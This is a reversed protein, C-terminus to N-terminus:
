PKAKVFIELPIITWPHMVAIHAAEIAIRADDPSVSKPHWTDFPLIRRFIATCWTCAAVYRGVTLELHYGDRTLDDGKSIVTRADQIATGTPILIKLEPYDRMVKNACLEISHFMSLQSMNYAKFGEHKSNSAYAWTMHWMFVPQKGVIERVMELLRGLKAYSSYIGSNKSGQQFSIYDWKEDRLAQLMTAKKIEIIRGDATIKRYRYAKNENELNELHTDIDCAAQFLNGVIVSEGESACIERFNQEIADESFSNGIALIRIPRAAGAILPCLITLLLILYPTFNLKRDM